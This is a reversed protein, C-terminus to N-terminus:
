PPEAEEESDEEEKLATARRQRHLTREHALAERIRWSHEPGPPKAGGKVAWEMLADQHQLLDSIIEAQDSVRGRLTRAEERFTDREREVSQVRRDLATVRAQLRAMEEAQRRMFERLDEGSVGTAGAPSAPVTAAAAVEADKKGAEGAGSWVKSGTRWAVYLGLVYAAVQLPISLFPPLGSVDPLAAATM